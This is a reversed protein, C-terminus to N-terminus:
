PELAGMKELMGYAAIGTAVSVNMSTKVGFMPIHVCQDTLTLIEESVGQQENGIVLICPGPDALQYYPISQNTIELGILTFDNKLMEVEKLSQLATYPVYEETGRAVRNFKKQQELDPLKYGYIHSLRAADAIRFLAGINRIDQVRDLLLSLPHRHQQIYSLYSEFDEREEQFHLQREPMLALYPFLPLTSPTTYFTPIQFM